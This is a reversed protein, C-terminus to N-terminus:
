RGLLAMASRFSDETWLNGSRDFCGAQNLGAVVDSLEEAGAGFVPQLAAVLDQEFQDPEYQRTQWVLNSFGGPPEIYGQGPETAPIVNRWDKLRPNYAPNKTENSM